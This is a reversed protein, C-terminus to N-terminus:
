TSSQSVNDNEKQQMNSFQVYQKPNDGFSSLFQNSSKDFWLPFKGEWEGNRQKDCMWIADPKKQLEFPIEEDTKFQSLEDEKLKNRWVSFCNDALDSLAGTGKIDLKGPIKYEDQGKRPHVILHIHCGFQNKFDCLREVFLKQATYDEESMGCKMLSDIVFLEIGYRQRAYLFVELLREAKATGTLDFLFLKDRYWDHIEQIYEPTPKALGAAQRTMRELLRVPTLELSAICVRANQRMADLAVQGILQSKGHGNIGVWLSLEDPRFMVKNLARRFPPNLGKEDDAHQFRHIVKSAYDAAQKLELPHSYSAEEFCRLIEERSVEKQLCENADKYPLKVIRCRYDGLRKLLEQAAEQGANDQDLCLYIEDFIALSDFELELWKLNNVGFPISLASIGYQYLSMCDIEGECITLTRSRSNFAQWGFLIPLGEKVSRIQKKNEPRHISLYKINKLSNDKFSQLIIEEKETALIKYAQITETTLKRESILYNQIAQFSPENNKPIVPPKYQQAIIPSLSTASEGLWGMAWDIAQKFGIGKSLMILELVDGREGSEFDCFVGAKDASLRIKLSEGAEGSLSGVCYEHGIKKGLPFLSKCLSEIRASLEVIIQKSSKVVM